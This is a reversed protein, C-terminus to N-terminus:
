RFCVCFFERLDRELPVERTLFEGGNCPIRTQDSTLSSLDWTDRPLSLGRTVALSAQTDCHLAQAVVCLKKELFHRHPIKVCM